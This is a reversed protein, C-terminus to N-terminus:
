PSSPSSPSLTFHSQRWRSLCDFCLRPSTLLLLLFSPLPFRSVFSFTLCDGGGRYREMNQLCTLALLQHVRSHTNHRTHKSEQLHTHTYSSRTENWTLHKLGTRSIRRWGRRRVSDGLLVHHGWSRRPSSGSLIQKSGNVPVMICKRSQM